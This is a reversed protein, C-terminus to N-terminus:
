PGTKIDAPLSLNFYPNYNQEFLAAAATFPRQRYAAM